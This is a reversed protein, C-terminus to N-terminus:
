SLFKHLGLRNTATGRNYELWRDGGIGFLVTSSPKVDELNKCLEIQKNRYKNAIYTPEFETILERGIYAGLRNNYNSKQYVFLSDDTDERTVRLGIRAHAVPFTKSLSFTVDTICKYNLDVTLGRSLTYYVCDVLVNINKEECERLVKRYHVHENGTDSFPFSIIIADNSDLPLDEIFAWDFNNRWSLEHYLYEGKFCRFRKGSNNLYFKDFSESTGNSYALHPYQELGLISSLNYNKIWNIYEICFKDVNTELVDILDIKLSDLFKLVDSDAIATGHGYPLNRKDYKFQKVSRNLETNAKM